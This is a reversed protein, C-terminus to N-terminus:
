VQERLTKVSELLSSPKVPKVAGYLELTVDWITQWLDKSFDVVSVVTTKASYCVLLLKDVNLVKMELMVQVVYYKPLEYFVPLKRPNNPDPYPCKIEVAYEAKGNSRISGDPSVVYILTDNNMLTYCGEEQLVCNPFFVPMVQSVLTAVANNENAIGHDLRR